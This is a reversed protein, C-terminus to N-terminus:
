IIFVIYFSNILNTNREVQINHNISFYFFKNLKKKKKKKAIM